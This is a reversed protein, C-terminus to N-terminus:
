FAWHIGVSGAFGERKGQWGSVNIDCNIRSNKPAFRYGLELMASTGKLSPSPTTMGQYAARAEGEFEYEWALGAYFRSNEGMDHAYRAGFRLRHSNVADFDYDEGTSLKASAGSQHSYFYKLYTELSDGARLMREKGIGLHIAYYPNSIDYSTAKKAVIGAYDSKLRGGRVSGELYFGSKKDQRALLGAGIYSVKGDGHTAAADELYSDYSARGYEVFPGFTLAGDKTTQKRAFGVNLTYGHTDVYSGSHVRMSSGGQAAWSTYAGTQVNAAAATVASAIGADALLSMGGGLVDTATTRTEVLSKTENKLSTEEVAAIIEDANKRRVSFKYDLSVGQTGTIEGAIKEDTTLTGGKALKMLSFTENQQLRKAAGSFDVDVHLGRIDKDKVGLKLMTAMSSTAGEPLYFKLNQVGTFDHIETGASRIALINAKGGPAVPATGGTVTGHIKTGHLNIINGETKKGVGGCVDAGITVAGLYLINDSAEGQAAHGGCIAAQTDKRVDVINATANGTSEAFGGYANKVTGGALVLTSGTVNGKANLGGYASELTGGTVTLKNRQVTNGILSRGGWAAKNDGTEYKADGNNQFQFGRVVVKQAAAGKTDTDITYEYDGVTKEKAKDYTTGFDLGKANEMLSFLKETFPSTLTKLRNEDLGSAELKQWNLGATAAGGKLTLLTDNAKAMGADFHLKEFNAIQGATREGSVVLTNERVDKADSGGYITGTVTGGTFRVTNGTTKGTGRTYGGYVTKVIGGSLDVTNGTACGANKDSGIFGGYVNEITGTGAATRATNKYATSEVRVTNNKADGASGETRGGSIYKITKGEAVGTVTIANDETTHGGYSIGGYTKVDHVGDYTVSGKRFRNADILVASATGTNTDTRQVIEYDGSTTGTEYGKAAYNKFKLAGATGSKMLTLTGLTKDASLKSTDVTVKNWDIEQGGLGNAGKLTLMTGRSETYSDDIKGSSPKDATIHDTLHFTYNEFNEASKVAADKVYVNLTNGRADDSKSGGYLATDETHTGAALTAATGDGLNVTNGTTKGTGSTYGGYVSGGISGGTITVTNGTADAHSAANDIRGGMLDHLTAGGSFTVTNGTVAGTGSTYGGYVSGIKEADTASVTVRNGTAGGAGSTTKGGYAATVGGSPLGTITLHNNAATNGKYSIGGYIESTGGALPTAATTGDYVVTNNQFRNYDLLVSSATAANTDTRLTTEYDGSTQSKAAYNKFKLANATESKLLTAKGIAQTNAANATDLSLKDWDVLAGFGDTAKLTLMPAASAADGNLHFVYKDFNKVSHVVANKAYVNLTNGTVDNEKNGGYLTAHELNTGAALRDHSTDGLNVTNGTAKGTGSTYGGYISGSITGGTITVTNETAAGDHAANEAYGGYINKLAHTGTGAVTVSNKVSSGSAGATKGGYASDTDQHLNKITLHNKATTNGAYSIGGYIESTTSGDSHPMTYAAKTGDYVTTNNRFRNYDLLVSSATAANTDTRLATEWDGHTAATTRNRGQYNKFTLANKAESKLLHTTGLVTSASLKSTDIDLGNWDVLAGFGDTAKLTLMPAASAADGKLHFVYKDFNKVSHVVANKAYINLTNGTVDNEKNGGYLTAHELNTGAALRDHSADGLNVCNHTAKGNTGDAYGGYVHATFKGGTITVTNETVTGDAKSFGGYIFGDIKGGSITVSNHTVLSAGSNAQHVGGAGALEIEGGKITLTNYSVKGTGATAGGYIGLHTKGGEVIAHNGDAASDGGVTGSGGQAVAGMGMSIEGGKLTFTNNKLDGTHSAAALGGVAAGRIGSSGSEFTVSNGTIASTPAAATGGVLQGNIQQATSALRVNVRNGTANGTGEAKGGYANGSLTGGTITVTNETANGGGSTTGGYIDKKVTGGAITVANKNAAGKGNTYGGYIDNSTGNKVTVTNGIVAATSNANLIYGGYLKKRVTGNELTLTNGDTASGVAGTGTTRGGTVTSFTGSKLTVKNGTVAGANSMHLIAGGDVYNIGRQTTAEVIVKNNKADGTIGATKGGYANKVQKTASTNTVTLTNNETTHGAYSSGGFIEEADAPNTGDYTWANDKFISYNMIVSSATRTGTDTGIFYEANKTSGTGLNRPAYGEKFKLADTEASKVLTIMGNPKGSLGSTDVTFNNAWDIERDFGGREITLMTDGNKIHDNLKFNYKDFNSVQYVTIGKGRVNLTNNNVAGDTSNDGYISTTILNATYTGDEAGLNVTNNSARSGSAGTTKGGYVAGDAGGELTGGSITVTNETSRYGIGGVLDKKVAGGTMTVFNNQATGDTVAGCVNEEITGGSLTVGNEEVDGQNKSLAGYISDAMSDDGDFTVTNKKLAGTGESLAGHIDVATNGTFSVKNGSAEASSNENEIYGGAIRETSESGSFEVTNDKVAGTGKTYGGYALTAAGNQLTIRNGSVEGASDEKAIYGGYVDGKLTGGTVQVTNKTVAGAGETYGGYISTVRGGAFNVTNETASDAGRGGYVAHPSELLVNKIDVLNKAADAASGGIINGEIRPHKGGGEAGITVKNGNAAGGDVDATRDTTVNIEAACASSPHVATGLGASLALTVLFSLRKGATKKM